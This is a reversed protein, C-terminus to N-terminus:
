SSGIILKRGDSIKSSVLNVNQLAYKKAGPYKYSLNIAQLKMGSSGDAREMPQYILPKSEADDKEFQARVVPELETSLVFAALFFFTQFLSEGVKYLSIGTLM